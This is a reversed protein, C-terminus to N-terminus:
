RRKSPEVVVLGWVRSGFPGSEETTQKELWSRVLYAGFVPPDGHEMGRTCEVTELM